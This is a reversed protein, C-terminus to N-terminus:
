YSIPSNSPNAMENLNRIMQQLLVIQGTHYAAHQALRLLGERGTVVDGIPSVLEKNLQEESPSEFIPRILGETWDLEGKAQSLSWNSFYSPFDGEHLYGEFLCRELLAGRESEACGGLRRAWYHEAGAIHLCYEITSHGADHARAQAAAESVSALTTQLRMRTFSWVEGFAHMSCNNCQPAFVKLASVDFM